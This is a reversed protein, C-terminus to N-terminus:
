DIIAIKHSESTIKRSDELNLDFLFTIFLNLEKLYDLIVEVFYISICVRLRYSEGERVM